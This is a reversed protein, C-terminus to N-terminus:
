IIDVHFKKLFKGFVGKLQYEKLVWLKTINPENKKLQSAKPSFM